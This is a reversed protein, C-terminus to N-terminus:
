VAMLSRDITRGLADYDFPKTVVAFPSLASSHAVREPYATVIIVRSDANQAIAHAADLGTFPGDRLQIDALVLGPRCAKAAQLAEDYTAATGCVQPGIREVLASIESAILFDDEIILVQALDVRALRRRTTALISRVHDVRLQLIEAVDAEEFGLSTRLVLAAREDPPLLMLRHRLRAGTRSESHDACQEQPLVPNAEHFIRYLTRRPRVGSIERPHQLAARLCAEVLDDGTASSGTLLFAYRRLEPTARGLSAEVSGM